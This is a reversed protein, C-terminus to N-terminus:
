GRPCVVPSAPWQEYLIRSTPSSGIVTNLFATNSTRSLGTRTEGTHGRSFCTRIATWVLTSSSL